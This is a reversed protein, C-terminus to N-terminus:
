EMVKLSMFNTSAGFDLICNNLCLGNIGLSLYFSPNIDRKRDLYITSLIILPDEKENPVRLIKLIERKVSPIKWMKTEPVIM